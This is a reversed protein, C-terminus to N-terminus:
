VRLGWFGLDEVELGLLLARRVGGEGGEEGEGGPRPVAPRRESSLEQEWFM